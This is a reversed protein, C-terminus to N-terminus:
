DIINYRTRLFFIFSPSKLLQLLLVLNIGSLLCVYIFFFIDFFFAIIKINRNIHALTILLFPSFLQIPLIFILGFFNRFYLIFERGNFQEVTRWIFSIFHIQSLNFFILANNEILEFTVFDFYA